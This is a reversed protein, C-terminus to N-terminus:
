RGTNSLERRANKQGKYGLCPDRQAGVEFGDHANIEEDANPGLRVTAGNNQTSITLGHNYM